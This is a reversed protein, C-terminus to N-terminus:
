FNFELQLDIENQCYPCVNLGKIASFSYKCKPCEIDYTRSSLNNKAIDHVQDLLHNKFKNMDSKSNLNFTKTM